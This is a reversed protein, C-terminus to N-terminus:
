LRDRAGVPEAQESTEGGRAAVSRFAPLLALCGLVPVALLVYMGAYPDAVVGRGLGLLAAAILPAVIPALTNAVNFVGLGFAARDPPLLGQVIARTAVSGLGIAAGAAFTAVIFIGPSPAVARGIMAVALLVAAVGLLRTERPTRRVLALTGSASLLGAVGVLTSLSVLRAADHEALAWRDMFLYLGFVLGAALEVAFVLRVTMAALFPRTLIARLEEFRRGEPRVRPASADPDRLRVAMVTMLLAAGLPVVLIMTVTDEAFLGAALLGPLTGIFAVASFVAGLRVRHEPALGRSVMSNVAAFAANYAIQTLVWALGLALPDPAFAVAVSGALGGFAGGIIWIRRGGYRAPTRDACWGMLPNAVMAAASGAAVVISLAGPAEADGVMRAIMMSLGVVAPATLAGLAACQVIALAYIRKMSPLDGM